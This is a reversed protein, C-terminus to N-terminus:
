LYFANEVWQEITKGTKLFKEILPHGRPYSIAGFMFEQKLVDMVNGIKEKDEWSNPIGLAEANSFSPYDNVLEWIRTFIDALYDLDAVNHSIYLSKAANDITLSDVEDVIVIVERGYAAKSVSTRITQKAYETLLFDRQYYSIEGYMISAENYRLHRTM